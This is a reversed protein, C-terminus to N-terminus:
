YKVDTKFKANCKKGNELINQENKVIFHWLNPYSGQYPRSVLFVFIIEKPRIFFLSNQYLTSWFEDFDLFTIISYIHIHFCDKLVAVLVPIVM